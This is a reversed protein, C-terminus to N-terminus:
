YLSLVPIVYTFVEWGAFMLERLVIAHTTGYHSAVIDAKKDFYHSTRTRRLSLLVFNTQFVTKM